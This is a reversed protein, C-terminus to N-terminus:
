LRIEGTEAYQLIMRRVEEATPSRPDKVMAFIRRLHTGVTYTSPAPGEL